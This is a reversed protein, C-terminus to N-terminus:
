YRTMAYKSETGNVWQALLHNYKKVAAEKMAVAIRHSAGGDMHHKSSLIRQDYSISEFYADGNLYIHRQLQVTSFGKFVNKRKLSRKSLAM